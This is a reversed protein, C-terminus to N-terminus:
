SNCLEKRMLWLLHSVFPRRSEKTVLMLLKTIKLKDSDSFLLILMEQIFNTNLTIYNDTGVGLRMGKKEWWSFPHDKFDPFAGTLKLNSSPLAVLSVNKHIIRNLIDHQYHEIERATHFKTKLFSIKEDESLPIGEYLKKKIEPDHWEMDELEEWEGSKKKIPIRKLNKEIVRQFLRHFYFNPNIGLSLGHELTDLHWINMANDVSQIGKKLNKWTEGHHSRIKLGEYQLKRLGSKLEKFHAKRYLEREDGVTDVETLVQKLEPRKKLIALLANVQHEFHEEKTSFNVNDFFNLEKRFSPSLIFKFSPVEKQFKKFGDYLGMVVDEETVNESGPIAESSINTARSLTFKLRLSGVNYKHYLESAMHYAADEHDKKSKLILKALYLIELYRSFQEGDKLRILNDVDEVSEIPLADEGYVDKIKKEYISKNKSKLLKKLRPFIFEATLSGTLHIHEEHYQLPFNKFFDFLADSVPHGLLTEIDVEDVQFSALLKIFENISKELTPNDKISESHSLLELTDNLNIGNTESIIKVIECYLSKIMQERKKYM